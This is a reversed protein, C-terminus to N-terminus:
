IDQYKMNQEINILYLSDINKERHVAKQDDFTTHNSFITNILFIFIAQSNKVQAELSMKRKTKSM